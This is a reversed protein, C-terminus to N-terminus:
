IKPRWEALKWHRWLLAYPCLRQDNVKLWPSQWCNDDLLPIKDHWGDGFIEQGHNVTNECFDYLECITSGENLCKYVQEVGLFFQLNENASHGVSPMQFYNNCSDCIVPSGLKNMLLRLTNNYLAYGDRVLDIMFHPNSLRQGIGTGIYNRITDHFPKFRVDNLYLNLRDQVMMGMRALGIEFSTSEGMQEVPLKYMHDYIDEAKTPIYGIRKMDRLTEVFIKGPNAYQLSMDCLAIVNLEDEGFEPYELYVVISAAQYPYDYPTTSGKTIKREILFAMSEMIACTGFKLEEGGILRLYPIHLINVIDNHFPVLSDHFVVEKAFISERDSFDGMCTSNVFKNLDVNGYNRPIKLPIDFEGHPLKYIYTAAAHMYESYVYANNLLSYSSIDQLFHIYEHIFTSLDKKTLNYLVLRSQYFPFNLEMHFFSPMYSGLTQNFNKLM